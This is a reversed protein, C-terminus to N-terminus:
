GSVSSGTPASGIMIALLVPKWGIFAGVMAMLKIDGGGM